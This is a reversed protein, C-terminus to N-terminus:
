INTVTPVTQLQPQKLKIAPSLDYGVDVNTIKTRLRYTIPYICTYTYTM